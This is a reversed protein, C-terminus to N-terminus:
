AAGGTLIEEEILADILQDAVKYLDQGCLIQQRRNVVIGVQKINEYPKLVEMEHLSLGIDELGWIHVPKKKAQMAQLLTVRRPPFAEEAISVVAPLPVSVLEMHNDLERTAELVGDQISIKRVYSVLPLDLREALRPAIQFTYGDDSAFGCMILDFPCLKEVAAQLIRVAIISDAQGEFPDEILTVDDVGMALVDRFSDKARVPGLTVAQITAQAEEMLQAAAEVVNKDIDGIKEPVGSLHLESTAPDVKIESVDMSYKILVLIKV